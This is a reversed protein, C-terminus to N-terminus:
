QVTTFSFQRHMFIVAYGAKLFYEASTAGRTGASFNDLFRVVNLELPVTTGGSTVLVVKRGGGLQRQVFERVRAVEQDLNPPPPQTDFYNEASFPTTTTSEM